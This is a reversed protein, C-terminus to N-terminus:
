TAVTELSLQVPSGNRNRSANTVLSRKSDMIIRRKVTGDLRTKSICAFKNLVPEGGVADSLESLSDFSELWGRSIYQEIIALAEPDSEVGSYNTFSAADTILQDVGLPPEDDVRDLVGDLQFDVTIGAPSGQHLWSSCHAAPDHAWGSWAACGTLDGAAM